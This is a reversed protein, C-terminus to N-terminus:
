IGAPAAGAPTRDRQASRWALVALAVFYVDQALVWWSLEQTLFRGFCGCNPISLGRAFAQLALAAWLSATGLGAWGAAARLRPRPLLLGIGGAVEGALLTMAMLLAAGSGGTRYTEIADVFEGFSFIQGLAMSLVLSAFIIRALPM